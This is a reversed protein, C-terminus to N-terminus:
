SSLINILNAVPNAPNPTISAVTVILISSWLNSGPHMQSLYLDFLMKIM